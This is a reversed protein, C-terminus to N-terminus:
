CTIFEVLPIPKPQTFCCISHRTISPLGPLISQPEMSGMTLAALPAPMLRSKLTTM